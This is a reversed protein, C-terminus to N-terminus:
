TKIQPPRKTPTTPDNSSSTDLNVRFRIGRWATRVPQDEAYIEDSLVDDKARLLSIDIAKYTGSFNCASCRGRIIVVLSNILVDSIAGRSRCRPCFFKFHELYM